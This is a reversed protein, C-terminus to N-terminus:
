ENVTKRAVRPTLAGTLACGENAGVASAVEQASLFHGASDYGFFTVEDGVECDIGGLDVFSQDMCCALLGARRGGILVPAHCRFLNLDLGDGYGVSLVGVRTDARLHFSDGYALSDGARRQRIDTLYARFSAAERIRGTPKDPNDMYLRRGVRVADLSYKADAELSASSSIHRLGPDIGEARLAATMREFLAFQRDMTEVTDDSFHSFTGVINLWPAHAHLSSLLAPLEDETFGIRHLGTDLKLQVPIPRGLTEAAQRLLPFQRFSGLPPILGAEAAPLLQRDLPISLLWIAGGIGAERLELGESVHSVAFTDVGCGSLIRAVAAAGLGYANDKIVPVLAATGLEERLARVNDRLAAADLILYSNNLM